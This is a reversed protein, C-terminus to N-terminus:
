AIVRPDTETAEVLQHAIEVIDEGTKQAVKQDYVSVSPIKSPEPLSFHPIEASVRAISVARKAANSLANETLTNTCAFGVKNKIVIRFGVGADTKKNQTLIASNRIAVETKENSTFFAEVITISTDNEFTKVTKHVSDSLSIWEIM